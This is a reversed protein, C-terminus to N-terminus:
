WNQRCQSFILDDTTTHITITQIHKNLFSPFVLIINNCQVTMALDKVVSNGVHPGMVLNFHGGVRKFIHLFVTFGQPESCFSFKM